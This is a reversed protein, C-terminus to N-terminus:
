KAFLEAVTKSKSDDPSGGIVPQVTIEDGKVTDSVNKAVIGIYSKGTFKPTAFGGIYAYNGAGAAIGITVTGEAGNFNSWYYTGNVGDDDMSKDTGDFEQIITEAVGITNTAFIRDVVMGLEHDTKNHFHIGEVGDFQVAAIDLYYTAFESTLVPIDPGPEEPEEPEEPEVINSFGFFKAFSLSTYTTDGDHM